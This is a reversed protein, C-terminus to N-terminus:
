CSGSCNRRGLARALETKGVGPPGYLLINVGKINQETAKTLYSQLLQVQLHSFNDVGFKAPESKVLVSSLLQEKSELKEGTLKLMLPEPIRLGDIGDLGSVELLGYEDMQQVVQKMLLPSVALVDLIFGELTIFDQNDFIGSLMSALASHGNIVIILQVLKAATEPLQLMKTLFSANQCVLKTKKSLDTLEM